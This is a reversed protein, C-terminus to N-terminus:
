ACNNFRCDCFLERRSEPLELLCKHSRRPWCVDRDRGTSIERSSAEIEVRALAGVGAYRNSSSTKKKASGVTCKCARVDRAEDVLVERALQGDVVEDAVRQLADLFRVLGYMDELAALAEPADHDVLRVAAADDQTM